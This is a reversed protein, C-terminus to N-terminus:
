FASKTSNSLVLSVRSFETIDLDFCRQFKKVNMIKLPFFYIFTQSESIINKLLFDDRYYYQFYTLTYVQRGVEKTLKSM